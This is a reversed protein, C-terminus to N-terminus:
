QRIQVKKVKEFFHHFLFFTLLDCASLAACAERLSATDEPLSESLQKATFQILSTPKM